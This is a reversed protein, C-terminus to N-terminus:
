ERRLATMPDVRMARRAPLWCAAVTITGIVLLVAGLLLMQLQAMATVEFIQSALIWSLGLAVPLGTGLGWGAMKLGGRLVWRFVTARTAGLALRIGIEPTRALVNQAMVGYIGLACLGLALLGLAGLIPALLPIAGLGRRVRKQLTELGLLPQHPDIAQMRKRLEPVLMEPGMTSKLLFSYTSPPEQNLCLYLAKPESGWPDRKVDGVVGVVTFAPGEEGPVVLRLRQGIPDGGAFARRALAESVVAVRPSEPGDTREFGRGMRLPIRLLDFYGHDVRQCTAPFLGGPCQSGRGHELMQRRSPGIPPGDAVALSQVGPIAALERFVVEKLALVQERGAYRQGAPMIEFTLVGDVEMGPEFRVGLLFAHLFLGAGTTLVLAFAIESSVLARRLVQRRRDGTAQRGGEKLTSMVDPKAGALAPLLGTLMGAMLSLGATFGLARLNLTVAELNEAPLGFETALRAKLLLIAWSALLVGLAGGVLGLLGSEIVLQGVLRSRTAGLAARIALEHRRALGRALQLNAVNACVLMLVFMTAGGAFGVLALDGLALETQLPRVSVTRTSHSQPYEVALRGAVTRLEALAQNATSGLKLRGVVRLHHSDRQSWDAVRMTLPAWLEVGQPYRIRDPMIGVVTYPERALQIERGVINTDGGFRRRWLGHSLIVQNGAGPENADASFLRGHEPRVGLTTFFNATVLCAMIREPEGEGSLDALWLSWAALQELSSVETQWDRYDAPSVGAPQREGGAEGPVANGSIALLRDIEPFAPSRSWFADAFSFVTTNAGIGVALTAVVALSYGPNKLVLRVAFRLDELMIAPGRHALRRKLM